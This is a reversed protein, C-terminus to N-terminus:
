LLRDGHVWPVFRPPIVPFGRGRAQSSEEAFPVGRSTTGETSVDRKKEESQGRERHQNSREGLDMEHSRPRPVRTEEEVDHESTEILAERTWATRSAPVDVHVSRTAAWSSSLGGADLKRRRPKAAPSIERWTM